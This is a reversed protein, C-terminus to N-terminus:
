AAMAVAPSRRGLHSFPRAHPAPGFTKERGTDHDRPAPSFQERGLLPRCVFSANFVQGAAVQVQIAENVPERGDPRSQNQHSNLSRNNPGCKNSGSQSSGFRAHIFRLKPSGARRRLKRLKTRNILVRPPSSGAEQPANRFVLAPPRIQQGRRSRSCSYRSCFRGPRVARLPWHKKRSQKSSQLVEDLHGNIKNEAGPPPPRRRIRNAVTSPVFKSPGM